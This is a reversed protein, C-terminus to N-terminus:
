ILHNIDGFVKIKDSMYCIITIIKNDEILISCYENFYKCRTESLYMFNLSSVDYRKISKIYAQKIDKSLKM